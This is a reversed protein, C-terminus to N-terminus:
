SCGCSLALVVLVIAGNLVICSRLGSSSCERKSQRACHNSANPSWCSDGESERAGPAGNIRLEKTFSYVDVDGLVSGQQNIEAAGALRQRLRLGRRILRGLNKVQFRGLAAPEV